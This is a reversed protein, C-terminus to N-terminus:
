LMLKLFLAPNRATGDRSARRKATETYAPRVQDTFRQLEEYVVLEDPSGRPLRLAKLEAHLADNMATLSNSSPRLPPSHQTVTGIRTCVCVDDPM